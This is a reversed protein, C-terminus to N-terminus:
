SVDIPLETNKAARNSNREGAEAQVLCALSPKLAQFIFFGTVVYSSTIYASVLVFNHWYQLAKKRPWLLVTPQILDVRPGMPTGVGQCDAGLPSEKPSSYFKGATCILYIYWFTLM